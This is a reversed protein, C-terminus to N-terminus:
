TTNIAVTEDRGALYRVGDAETHEEHM